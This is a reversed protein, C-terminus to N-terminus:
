PVDCANNPTESSTAGPFPAPRAPGSRLRSSCAQGSRHRTQHRRRGAADPEVSVVDGAYGCVLDAPQAEGVDGLAPPDEGAEGHGLVQPHRHRLFRAVSRAAAMSRAM